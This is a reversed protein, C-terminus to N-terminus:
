LENPKDGAVSVLVPLSDPRTGNCQRTLERGVAVVESALDRLLSPSMVMASAVVEVAALPQGHFDFVPAAVARIGPLCERDEIAYGRVRIRELETRLRAPSALTRSTLATLERQLVRHVLGASGFALLSKGSATAHLPASLRRHTTLDETRGPLGGARHVLRVHSYAPEAAVVLCTVGRPWEYGRLVERAVESVDLTELFSEALGLVKQGIRYRGTGDRRLLGLEALPAALRSATSAHVGLFRSIESASAGQSVTATESVAQLLAVGRRLSLSSNRESNTM